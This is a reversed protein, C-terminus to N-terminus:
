AVLAELKKKLNSRGFERVLDIVREIGPNNLQYSEYVYMNRHKLSLMIVLFTIENRFIDTINLPTVDAEEDDVVIVVSYRDGKGLEQRTLRVVDLDIEETLLAAVADALISDNAMLLVRIM